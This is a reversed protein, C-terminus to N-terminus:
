RRSQKKSSKKLNNVFGFFGYKYLTDDDIQHDYLYNKPRRSLAPDIGIDQNLAMDIVKTANFEEAPKFLIERALRNRKLFQFFPDM